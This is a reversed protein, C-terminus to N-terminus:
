RPCARLAQRQAPDRLFRRVRTQACASTATPTHGAPPVTILRRSSLGRTSRDTLPPPSVPDLGGAVVLAPVASRVLPPPAPAPVAWDDCYGGSAFELLLGYRGPARLLAADRPGRTAGLDGCDVSLQAGLYTGGPATAAELVQAVVALAAPDRARLGAVLAPLRPIVAQDKALSFLVAVLDRAVVRVPVAGGGAVRVRVRLPRRAVERLLREYGAALGPYAAFLRAQGARVEAVLATVAVDGAEPGTGSDLVAARVADPHDALTQLAARTGYSVGWLDVRPVGLATRLDAVDGATARSTFADLRVGGAQLRTRCARVAARLRAREPAYARRRSRLSAALARDFEPCTLAPRSRGTGRQDLLVVERDALLPDAAFREAEVSAAEGPGGQLFVLPPAGDPTTRRRLRVVLLSATPGGPVARDLPVTLRACAPTVGAPIRGLDGCPAPVLAALAAAALALM